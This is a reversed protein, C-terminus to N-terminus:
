QKKALKSLSERTRKMTDNVRADFLENRHNTVLRYAEETDALQKRLRNMEDLANSDPLKTLLLKILLVLERVDTDTFTSM